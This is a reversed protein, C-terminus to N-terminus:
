TLFMSGVRYGSSVLEDNKLKAYVVTGTETGRILTFGDADHVWNYYEDGTTFCHIETGDPQTVTIPFKEIYSAYMMFVSALLFGFLLSLKKM